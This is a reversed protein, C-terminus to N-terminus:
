GPANSYTVYVFGAGYNNGTQTVFAVMGNGSVCVTFGFTKGVAVEPSDIKSINNVDAQPLIGTDSYFLYVDGTYDNNPEACYGVILFDGNKGLSIKDNLNYIAHQMVAVESWGANYNFQYTNQYALSYDNANVFIKDGSPSIAVCDGFNSVTATDTPALITQKTWVTGTRTFVYVEGIADQIIVNSGIVIKSGDANLQLTKGFLSSYVDDSTLTQELSWTDVTRKFIHVGNLVSLGFSAIALRDGNADFNVCSGFNDGSNLAPHRLTAELAWTTGTRAYVYVYGAASYTDNFVGPVGIAVRDGNDTISVSYGYQNDATPNIDSIMTEEVWHDSGNNKFIYVRGTKTNFISNGDAGIVIRNGTYDIDSSIGFNDDTIQQDYLDLGLSDSGVIKQIINVPLLLQHITSFMVPESWPSVGLVAVSYRVRVYYTSNATALSPGWGTQSVVDGLSQDVINTFNVDTALQWDSNQWAYNTTDVGPENVELGTRYVVLPLQVDVANALPQIISPAKLTVPHVTIHITRGNVVFGGEQATMPATYNIEDIDRVVSGVTASVNYNKFSSYNTIRFTVTQGIYVNGTFTPLLTDTNTTDTVDFVNDGTQDSIKCKFNNNDKEFYIVNPDSNIEGANAIKRIEITTM